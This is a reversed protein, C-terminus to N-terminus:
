VHRFNGSFGQMGLKTRIFNNYCLFPHLINKTLGVYTKTQTCLVNKFTITSAKKQINM